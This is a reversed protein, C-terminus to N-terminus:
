LRHVTAAPFSGPPYNHDFSGCLNMLGQSSEAHLSEDPRSGGQRQHHRARCKRL